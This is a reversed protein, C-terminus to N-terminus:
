TTGGMILTLILQSSHRTGAHVPRSGLKSFQVAAEKGHKFLNQDLLALVTVYNHHIARNPKICRIQMAVHLITTTASAASSNFSLVSCQTFQYRM